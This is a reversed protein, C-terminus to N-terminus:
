EDDMDNTNALDELSLGETPADRLTVFWVTGKGPFLRFDDSFRKVFARLGGARNISDKFRPDKAYLKRSLGPQKLLAAKKECLMTKLTEVALLCVEADAPSLGDVRKGIVSEKQQHPRGDGECSESVYSMDTALSSVDSDFESVTSTGDGPMGAPRPELKVEINIAESIDRGALDASNTFGLISRLREFLSNLKKSMSEFHPRAVAAYTQLVGADSWGLQLQRRASAFACALTHHYSQIIKMAYHYYEAILGLFWVQLPQSHASKRVARQYSTIRLAIKQRLAELTYTVQALDEPEVPVDQAADMVPVDSRIPLAGRLRMMQHSFMDRSVAQASNLMQQMQQPSSALVNNLTRAPTLVARSITEDAKRLLPDGYFHWKSLLPERFVKM